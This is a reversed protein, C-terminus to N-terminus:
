GSGTGSIRCIAWLRSPFITVWIISRNNCDAVDWSGGAGCDISVRSSRTDASSSGKLIKMKLEGRLVFRQDTEANKGWRLLMFLADGPDSEFRGSLEYKIMKKTDSLKGGVFDRYDGGTQVFGEPLVVKLRFDTDFGYWPYIRPDFSSRETAVITLVLEEGLRVESKDSTFYFLVPDIDSNHDKDAENFAFSVNSLLFVLLFPTFLRWVYALVDKKMLTFLLIQRILFSM